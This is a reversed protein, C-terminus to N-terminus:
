LIEVRGRTHRGSTRLYSAPRPASSSRNVRLRERQQPPSAVFSDSFCASFVEDSRGISGVCVERAWSGLLTTEEEGGVRTILRPELFKADNVFGVGWGDGTLSLPFVDMLLSSFVSGNSVLFSVSVFCCFFESAFSKSGTTLGGLADGLELLLRNPELFRAASFALAENESLYSLTHVCHKPPM